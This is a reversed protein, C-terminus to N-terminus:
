LFFFRSSLKMNQCQTTTQPPQNQQGGPHVPMIRWAASPVLQLLQSQFRLILSLQQFSLRYWPHLHPYATVFGSCFPNVWTTTIGWLLLLLIEPHLSLYWHSKTCNVISATITSPNKNQAWLQPRHGTNQEATLRVVTGTHTIHAM